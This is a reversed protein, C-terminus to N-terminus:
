VCAPMILFAFVFLGSLTIQSMIDNKKEACGSLSLTNIIEM